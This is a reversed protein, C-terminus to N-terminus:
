WDGLFQVEFEMTHGTTAAVADRLHDMVARLEAASAQGTNFVFNGHHPSVMADGRRYGKLGCRDILAGSPVGVSHDNEFVCGCSPYDLEHRQRRSTEIQDMRAGIAAGDGPALALTVEAIVEGSGQFPSRKYAFQEPSLQPRRTGGDHTLTVARALVGSVEGEYARANMYCAGGITGPLCTFFEAGTLAAERAAVAVAHSQVGAGARLEHGEVELTALATTLVVAGRVGRDSVLVNTGGGLVTAPCGRRRLLGLAAAAGAADEPFLALDAPGGAAYHTHPALPLDQVVVGSMVGRLEDALDRLAAGDM